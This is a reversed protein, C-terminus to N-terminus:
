RFPTVPPPPVWGNAGAVIWAWYAGVVALLYGWKSDAKMVMLVGAVLVIAALLLGYLPDTFFDM